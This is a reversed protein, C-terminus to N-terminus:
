QKPDQLFSSTQQVFVQNLETVQLYHYLMWWARHSCFQLREAGKEMMEVRCFYNCLRQETKSLGMAVDDHLKSTDRELFSKLCM